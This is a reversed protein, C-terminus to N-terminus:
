LKPSVAELQNIITIIINIRNTYRRYLGFKCLREIASHFIATYCLRYRPTEFSQM